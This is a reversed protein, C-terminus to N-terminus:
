SGPGLLPPVDKPGLPSGLPDHSRLSRLQYAVGVLGLLAWLGLLLWRHLMPTGEMAHRAFELNTPVLRMLLLYGASVCSLAGGSSTLLILVFRQLTMALLGGGAGFAWFSWGPLGLVPTLYLGLLAAGCAGLVFVGLYYLLYLSFAGILGGLLVLLTTMEVPVVLREAAMLGFWAGAAMGNLALFGRFLRYGAFTALAGLAMAGIMIYHWTTM